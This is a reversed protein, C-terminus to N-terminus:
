DKKFHKGIWGAATVPMGAAWAPTMSMVQVFAKLDTTGEPQENVMEDHVHFITNYGNAEANLLSNAMLDRAIAQVVNETLKGGYTDIETWKSSENAGEDSKRGWYFIKDSWREFRSDWETRVSPSYYHLRRGSPLTALLYPGEVQFHVKDNVSYVWGPNQIANKAAEEMKYWLSKINPNAERWGNKVSNMETESMGLKDAGFNLMAGVGGMFGLALEEVKGLKRQKNTVEMYPVKFTESYSKIYIDPKFTKGDRLPWDGQEILGQQM